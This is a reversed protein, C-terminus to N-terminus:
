DRDTRGVGAHEILIDSAGLARVLRLAEATKHEFLFRHFNFMPIYTRADVPHGVYVVKERPHGVPFTLQEADQQTVQLLSAYKQRMEKRQALVSAPGTISGWLGFGGAPGYSAKLVRRWDIKHPPRSPGDSIVISQRDKYPLDLITSSRM